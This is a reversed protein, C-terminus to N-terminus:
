QEEAGTVPLRRADINAHASDGDIVTLARRRRATL